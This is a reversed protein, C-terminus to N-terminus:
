VSTLMGVFMSLLSVLFLVMILLAMHGHLNCNLVRYVPVILSLLLLLVVMFVPPFVLFFLTITLAILFLAYEGVLYYRLKKIFRKRLRKLWVGFM